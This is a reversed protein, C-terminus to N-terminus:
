IDFVDLRAGLIDSIFCHLFTQKTEDDEVESGEWYLIINLKEDRISGVLSLEKILLYRKNISVLITFESSKVERIYFACQELPFTFNYGNFSFDVNLIKIKYSKYM